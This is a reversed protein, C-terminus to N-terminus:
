LKRWGRRVLEAIISPNAGGPYNPVHTKAAANYDDILQKFPGRLELELAAEVEPRSRKKKSSDTSM